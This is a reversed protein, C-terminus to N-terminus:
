GTEVYERAVRPSIGCLVEYPIVGLRDAMEWATIREEEQAGIIVVEDGGAVPETGVDVMFTDMSVNGVIPFRKGHILVQGANGYRRPIGDEYGGACVAITSDPGTHYTSGYGVPFGEPFQKVYAIRSKLSLVPELTVPNERTESPAVGYLSLGLRVMDYNAGSMYLAASSNALHFVPPEEKVEASIKQVITRFRKAQALALDDVLDATAFHSMVGALRLGPHQLINHLLQEYQDYLLGLRGMGTDLKLHVRLPLNAQDAFAAFRTYDEESAIVPQLDHQTILPLQHDWVRAMVLIPATVGAERLVVAEEVPAVALMSVGGAELTKAVRIDGHGYANAKVVGIVGAPAVLRQMEGLNQRLHDLRIEAVVDHRVTM